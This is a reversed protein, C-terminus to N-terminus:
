FYIRKRRKYESMNVCVRLLKRPIHLFLGINILTFKLNLKCDKEKMEQKLLTIEDHFLSYYDKFAIYGYNTYIIVEGNLFDSIFRRHVLWNLTNNANIKGLLRNVELGANLLSIKKAIYKGSSTSSLSNTFRRYKYLCKKSCAVQNVYVLYQILWHYDEGILFNENFFLNNKRIVDLSFLKGWVVLIWSNVHQFCQVMADQNGIVSSTYASCFVNKGSFDDFFEIGCFSTECHENCSISILEHIFDPYLIDDSDVFSIYKGTAIKLGSNRAGAVWKNNQNVIRIRSDAASFSEAIQLSNDLSGDNVIIIELNTYSQSIVSEICDHLYNEANYVPIIISVLPFNSDLM